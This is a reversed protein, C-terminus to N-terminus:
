AHVSAGALIQRVCKAKLQKSAEVDAIAAMVGGITRSESSLSGIRELILAQLDRESLEQPVYGKLVAIESDEIDALDARNHARYSAASDERKSIATRLLEYVASDTEIPKKTKTSNVIQALIDKLVTLKVKQREKMAVKVENKLNLLVASRPGSPDHSTSYRLCRLLPQRFTYRLM